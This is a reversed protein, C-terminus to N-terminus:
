YDAATIRLFKVLLREFADLNSALVADESSSNQLNIVHQFISVTYISSLRFYVPSQVHLRWM